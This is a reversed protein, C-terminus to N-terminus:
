GVRLGPGLGVLSLLWLCVVLAAVVYVIKDFPPAVYPRIFYWAIGLVVVVILLTIIDM